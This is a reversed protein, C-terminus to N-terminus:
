AAHNPANHLRESSKTSLLTPKGHARWHHYPALIKPAAAGPACMKKPEGLRSRCFTEGAAWCCVHSLGAVTVPDWVALREVRRQVCAPRPVELYSRFLRLPFDAFSSVIRAHDPLNNATDPRPSKVDWLSFAKSGLPSHRRNSVLPANLMRWKQQVLGQM